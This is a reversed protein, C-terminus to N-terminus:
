FYLSFRFKFDPHFDSYYLNTSNVNVYDAYILATQPNNRPRKKETSIIHTRRIVKILRFEVFEM